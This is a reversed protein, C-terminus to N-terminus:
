RDFSDFSKLLSIYGHVDLDRRFGTAGLVVGKKNLVLIVPFVMKKNYRKALEKNKKKQEQSIKNKRRRPFDARLWVYKQNTFDAFAETSLVNKELKICPPCWDSGTFFLVIKQDKDKALALAENLDYQWNQASVSISAFFVSFIIFLLPAYKNM